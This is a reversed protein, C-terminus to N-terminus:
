YGEVTKDSRSITWFEFHEEYKACRVNLPLMFMQLGM